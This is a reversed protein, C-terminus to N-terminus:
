VPYGVIERCQKSVMYYSPANKCAQRFPAPIECIEESAFIASSFLVQIADGNKRIVSVHVPHVSVGDKGLANVYNVSFEGSM